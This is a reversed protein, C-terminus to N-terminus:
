AWALFAVACTHVRICVEQLTRVAPGGVDDVRFCFFLYGDGFNHDDTVHHVINGNTMQAGLLTAHERDKAHGQVPCLSLPLSPPLSPPAPMRLLNLSVGFSCVSSSVAKVSRGPSGNM